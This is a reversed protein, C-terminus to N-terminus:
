GPLIKHAQDLISFTFTLVYNTRLFFEMEHQRDVFKM